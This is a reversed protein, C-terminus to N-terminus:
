VGGFIYPWLFMLLFLAVFVLTVLLMVKMMRKSSGFIIPFPGILVVGGFEGHVGRRQKYTNVLLLLIGVLILLFGSIYLFIVLESGNM